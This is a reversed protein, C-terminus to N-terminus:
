FLKKTILLHLYINTKSFLDSYINIINLLSNIEVNVFSVKNFIYQHNLILKYYSIIFYKYFICKIDLHYIM